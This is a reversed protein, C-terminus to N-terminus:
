AKEGACWAAANAVLRMLNEDELMERTHGPIIAAVRGAGREVCWGASTEGLVSTARLLPTVDDDVEVFYHEDPHVFSEVGATVPHDTAVEISVDPHDPPHHLFHGGVVQRLAGDTPHSATGSHFVLLGGGANVWAALRSQDHPEFWHADSSRPAHRGMMAFVVLDFHHLEAFSPLDPYRVLHDKEDIGISRLMVVLQDSSHWYDGAIALTKM